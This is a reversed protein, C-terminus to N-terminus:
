EKFGGQDAGEELKPTSFRDLVLYAVVIAITTGISNANVAVGQYGTDILNM